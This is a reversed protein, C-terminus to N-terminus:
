NRLILGFYWGFEYRNELLFDSYSPSYYGSMEYPTNLEYQNKLREMRSFAIGSTISLEPLNRLRLTPGLTLNLDAGDQLAYAIGFNLGTKVWRGKSGEFTMATGIAPIFGSQEAGRIMFTGYFEDEEIQYSIVPSFPALAIMALGSTSQINRQSRFTLSEIQPLPGEDFEFDFDDFTQCEDLRVERTIMGLEDYFRWIGCADISNLAEQPNPDPLGLHGGEAWVLPQCGSCPDNVIELGSWYADDRYWTQRHTLDTQPQFEDDSLDSEEYFALEVTLGNSGIESLDDIKLSKELELYALADMLNELHEITAVLDNSATSAPSIRSKAHVAWEWASEIEPSHAHLSEDLFALEAHSREIDVLIDELEELHVLEEISNLDNSAMEILAEVLNPTLSTSNLQNQISLIDAQILDLADFYNVQYDESLQEANEMAQYFDATALVFREEERDSLEESVTFAAGGGRTTGFSPLAPATPIQFGAYPNSYGTVGFESVLGSVLGFLDDDSEWSDNDESYGAGTSLDYNFELNTRLPNLNRVIVEVHDEALLIPARKLEKYTSDDRLLRSFHWSEDISNYEARFTRQAQLIYPTLCIALLALRLNM